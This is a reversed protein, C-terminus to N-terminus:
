RRAAPVPGDDQSSTADGQHKQTDYATLGVFVLVGLVSIAFSCARELALFM